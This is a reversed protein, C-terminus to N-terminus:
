LWLVKKENDFVKLYTDEYRKKKLYNWILLNDYFKLYINLFSLKQSFALM